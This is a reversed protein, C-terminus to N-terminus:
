GVKSVAGLLSKKKKSLAIWEGSMGSMESMWLLGLWVLCVLYLQPGWLAYGITPFGPLYVGFAGTLLSSDSHQPHQFLVSSPCRGSALSSVPKRCTVDSSCRTLDPLTWWSSVSSSSCFWALLLIVLTTFVRSVASIFESCPCFIVTSCSCSCWRCQFLLSFMYPHMCSSFCSLFNLFNFIIWARLCWLPPM